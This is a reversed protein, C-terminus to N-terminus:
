RRQTRARGACDSIFERVTDPDNHIITYEGDATDKFVALWDYAFVEVDYIILRM